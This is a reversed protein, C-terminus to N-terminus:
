VCWEEPITKGVAFKVGNKVCWDSYRTTGGKRLKNDAGFLLRYEVGGHQEVMAKAFLRDRADWRGKTEIVMNPGITFDPTYVVTQEFKSEGCACCRARQV